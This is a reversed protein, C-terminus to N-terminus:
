YATCFQFHMPDQTKGLWAGGWEFGARRFIEILGGDMNGVTGQLNTEPNLDIAIGWSHASLKSGTRQPRFAFCGGFSTIRDQLGREQISGFVSSFIGSMRRHCTMRIITRSPQWSLRVPFPLSVRDLFDVQWRPELQGDTAVYKHIDGFTTIIEDIGHPAVSPPQDGTESSVVNTPNDM